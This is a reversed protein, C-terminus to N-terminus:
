EKEDPVSEEIQAADETNDDKKLEEDLIHKSKGIAHALKPLQTGGCFLLIIAGIILLESFGLRM